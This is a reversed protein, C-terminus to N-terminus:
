RGLVQHIVSRLVAAPDDVGKASRYAVHGDPRVLVAGDDDIGYLSAFRGGEDVFDGDAGIRIPMVDLQLDLSSLASIWASGKSACLLVFTKEFLEITSM